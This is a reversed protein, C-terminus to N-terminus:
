YRVAIGVAGHSDGLDLTVQAHPEAPRPQNIALLVVGTAVALGGVIYSGYAIRRELIARDRLDPDGAVAMPPTGAAAAVGDDFRRFDHAAVAHVIGGLAIVALGAGGVLWPTRASFRREMAAPAVRVVVREPDLVIDIPRKEGPDLLITRTLTQHGALTAILVHRGPLLRKTTALPGVGIEEADITVLAPQRTALEVTAVRAALAAIRAKVTTRQADTLVADFEAALKEYTGLAEVLKGQEQEVLAIGNLARWSPEIAYSREFSERAAAFSADETFLRTGEDLLRQAEPDPDAAALASGLLIAAILALRM